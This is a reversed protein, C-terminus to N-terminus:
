KNGVVVLRKADQDYDIGDLGGYVKVDEFGCESFLSSLEVATYCRVSVTHEARQNGSIVIWRTQIRSWNQVPRRESLVLTDGFESWERERFNRLLIEKGATEIILRGRPKLSSHMNEIVRRNDKPDAFYGFSGFLNLVVEFSEPQCYDRMDGVIFDVLLDDEEAKLRAKEIFSATRDVGVVDFGRLALELSHRGTGCSLDLVRHHQQIELLDVLQDIEEKSNALRKQDFLVPDFLEWFSDEAHWSDPDTM